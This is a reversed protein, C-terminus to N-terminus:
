RKIIDKGKDVELILKGKIKAINDAAKKSAKNVKITINLAPQVVYTGYVAM